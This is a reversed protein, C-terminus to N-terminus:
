STFVTGEGDELRQNLKLPNSRTSPLL